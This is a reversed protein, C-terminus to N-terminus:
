LIDCESSGEFTEVGMVPDTAPCTINQMSCVPFTAGPTWSADITNSWAHNMEECVSKVCHIGSVEKM